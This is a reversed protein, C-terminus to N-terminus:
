LIIYLLYDEYNLTDHEQPKNSRPYIWPYRCVCMLTSTVNNNMSQIWQLHYVSQKKICLASNILMSPHVSIWM